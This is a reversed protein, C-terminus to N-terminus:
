CVAILLCQPNSFKLYSFFNSDNLQFSMKFFLVLWCWISPRCRAFVQDTRVQQCPEVSGRAHVKQVPRHWGQQGTAWRHLGSEYFLRRLSRLRRDRAEPVARGVSCSWRKGLWGSPLQAALRSHDQASKPDDWQRGLLPFGFSPSQTAESQHGYGVLTRGSLHLAFFACWHSHHLAQSCSSPRQLPWLYCPGEDRVRSSMPLSGECGVRDDLLRRLLWYARRLNPTAKAAGTAVKSWLLLGSGGWDHWIPQERSCQHYVFFNWKMSAALFLNYHTKHRVKIEVCDKEVFLERPFANVSMGSRITAEPSHITAAFSNAGWNVCSGIRRTIM